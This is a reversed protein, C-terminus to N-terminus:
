FICHTASSPATWLVHVNHLKLQGYIYQSLTSKGSGPQGEFFIIKHEM